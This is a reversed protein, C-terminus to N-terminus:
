WCHITSPPWFKLLLCVTNKKSTSGLFPSWWTMVIWLYRQRSWSQCSHLVQNFWWLPNWREKKFLKISTVYRRGDITDLTRYQSSDEFWGVKAGLCYKINQSYMFRKCALSQHSRWWQGSIVTEMSFKGLQNSSVGFFRVWNSWYWSNLYWLCWSWLLSKEQIKSPICITQTLREWWYLHKWQRRCLCKGFCLVNTLTKCQIKQLVTWCRECEIM